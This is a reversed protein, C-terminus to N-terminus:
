CSLTPNFPAFMGSPNDAFLWVHLDYHVPMTPNHGPMPGDFPVGLISPRDNATALSQDADAKWYEVGVLRLKGNPTPVYLLLEPRLPDIAPDAMLAENVAHIGMTGLPSAVCPEGVVSYGDKKAQEFSHYRAMAAKVAQLKDPPAAMAVAAVLAAGVVLVCATAIGVGGRRDRISM